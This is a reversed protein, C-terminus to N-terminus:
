FWFTNPPDYINYQSQFATTQQGPTYSSSHTNPYHQTSAALSQNLYLATNYADVDFSGVQPIGNLLSRNLGPVASYNTSLNANVPATNNYIMQSQNQQLLKMQQVWAKSYLTATDVPSPIPSVLNPITQVDTNALLSGGGISAPVLTQSNTTAVEGHRRKALPSEKLTTTVVEKEELTDASKMGVYGINKNEDHYIRKRSSPPAMTLDEDKAPRDKTVGPPSPQRYDVAPSSHHVVSRFNSRGSSSKAISPSSIGASSNNLAQSLPGSALTPLGSLNSVAPIASAINMVSPNYHNQPLLSYTSPLQYSLPNSAAGISAANLANTMKLKTEM